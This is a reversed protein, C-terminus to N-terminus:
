HRKKLCTMPRVGFYELFANSFSSMSSYGVSLATETVNMGENELLRKAELLRAQRLYGFVTSGYVERFGENLRAHNMGAARVLDILKPPSELDRCLIDRALRIRGLDREDFKLSALKMAVPAVIQALKHVILEMAKSEIYLSRLPGSYPCDLLHQITANMTRSLPGVHSFGRDTCGEFIARIDTPFEDLRGSLYTSLLSPTIHASIHFQRHDAKWFKRGELETSYLITSVHDSIFINNRSNKANPYRFEWSGAGSIYFYFKLSPETKEFGREITGHSKFDAIHVDMGSELHFTEMLGCENGKDMVDRLGFQVVNHGGAGTKVDDFRSLGLSKGLKVNLTM